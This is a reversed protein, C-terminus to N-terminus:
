TGSPHRVAPFEGTNSHENAAEWAEVEPEPYRVRAQQTQGFKIFRPGVGRVRWMALTCPKVGVREALEDPTLHRVRSM